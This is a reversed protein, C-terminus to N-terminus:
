SWSGGGRQCFFIKESCYAPESFRRRIFRDAKRQLTTIRALYRSTGVQVINGFKMPWQLSLMTNANQHLRLCFLSFSSVYTLCLESHKLEVGSSNGQGVLCNGQGVLIIRWPLWFPGQTCACANAVIVIYLQHCGLSIPHAYRIYFKPASASPPHFSTTFM